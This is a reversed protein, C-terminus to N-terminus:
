GLLRRKTIQISPANAVSKEYERKYKEENAKAKRLEDKIDEIEQAQQLKLEEFQMKIADYALCKAQMRQM